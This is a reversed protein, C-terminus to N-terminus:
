HGGKMHYEYEQLKDNWHLEHIDWKESDSRKVELKQAIIVKDGNTRLTIMGYQAVNRDKKSELEKTLKTKETKTKAAAIKANYANIEDFYERIPTFERTSRAIETSFILPRGGRSYKGFAGLADPRPHGYNEEDGSSIVTALPNLCRLFTESFHHSGHHCAKAVDVEYHNRAKMVIADIEATLEEQRRRDTASLDSGVRQLDHLEKELASVEADTDCCHQLLHDEAKTNLDGGLLVRLKGIELRFVISHGNKTEGEDGLWKLCNEFKGQHSLRKHVPGLVHITLDSSEDFSGFFKDNINLNKFKVRSNNKRAEVLTSLWKKQTGEHKKILDHAEKNSSVMDWLYSTKGDKIFGGLDAKYQLSKKKDAKRIPREFIGNHYITNVKVKRSEFLDKFGLYHDTDPHSVVVHEINVPPRSPSRRRLNYRWSIFRFMNDSKGSDILIIEDNPTVVHCSDGQGIDIFNVELMRDPSIETKRLWGEDGRCRVKVWGSREPGLYRLWDGLLLHNVGTGKASPTKRLVASSVNIFYSKNKSFPM